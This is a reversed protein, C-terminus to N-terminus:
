SPPKDGRPDPPTRSSEDSYVYGMSRRQRKKGKYHDENMGVEKM